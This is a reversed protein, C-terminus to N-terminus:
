LAPVASPKSTGGLDQWRYLLFRGAETGTKTLDEVVVFYASGTVQYDTEGQTEFLVSTSYDTGWAKWNAPELGDPNTASVYYETREGFASSPSLTITVSTLWLDEDLPTESPPINQPEFMRRHIRLEETRGWDIPQNPELPDPKLIFLYDDHFLREFRAFIRTQYADSLAEILQAPSGIEPPPPPPQPPADKPSFICSATLLATAACLSLLLTRFVRARSM